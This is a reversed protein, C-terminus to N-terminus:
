PSARRKCSSFIEAVHFVDAFEASKRAEIGPGGGRASARGLEDGVSELGVVGGAEALAALQERLLHQGAVPQDPDAERTREHGGAEAFGTEDGEDFCAEDVPDDGRAGIEVVVDM